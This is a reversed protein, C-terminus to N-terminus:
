KTNLCGIFSSIQFMPNLPDWIDSFSSNGTNYASMKTLPKENKQKWSEKLGDWINFCMKM